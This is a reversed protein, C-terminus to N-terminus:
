CFPFVNIIGDRENIFVVLTSFNYEDSDGYDDADFGEM